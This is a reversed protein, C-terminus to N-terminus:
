RRPGVEAGGSPFPGADPNGMDLLQTVVVTFPRDEGPIALTGVYYTLPEGEDQIKQVDALRRVMAEREVKLAAIIAFDVPPEIM